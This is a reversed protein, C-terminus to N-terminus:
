AFRCATLYVVIVAVLRMLLRRYIQKLEPLSGRAVCYNSLVTVQFHPLLPSKDRMIQWSSDSGRQRDTAAKGSFTNFYQIKKEFTERDIYFHKALM